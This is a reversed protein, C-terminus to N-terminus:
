RTTAPCPPSTPLHNAPVAVPDVRVIFAGSKMDSVLVNGSPLTTDLNWAGDYGGTISQEHSGDGDPDRWTEWNGVEVPNVPNSVDFVRFGAEYYATLLYSGRVQGNHVLSSTTADDAYQFTNVLTPTSPVSVDYVAIDHVDFEEFTYLLSADDNLWNSHSYSGTVATTEGVLSPVGGSRISTIDLIRFRRAYGDASFLLDKGGTGPVNTRAYSDHCDRQSGGWTGLFPPDEPNQLLDFIQCGLTSGSNATNLFLLDDTIAVTHGYNTLGRDFIASSPIPNSDAADGTGSLYSLDVIWFNGGAQAGVYAYTKGNTHTYTDVDRWVRGGSMPIFQVRYPAAPDTVDVIHLGNSHAQLAYERAGFAYGWIGNYLEGSSSNDGYYPSPPAPDSRGLLTVNGSGTYSAAAPAAATSEPHALDLLAVLYGFTEATISGATKQADLWHHLQEFKEQEFYMRDIYDHQVESIDGSDALGHLYAEIVEPSEDHASLTTAALLLGTAAVAAVGRHLKMYANSKNM